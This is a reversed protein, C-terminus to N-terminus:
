ALPIVLHEGDNIVLSAVKRNKVEVSKSLVHESVDVKGAFAYEGGGDTMQDLGEIGL